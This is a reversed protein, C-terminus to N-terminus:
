DYTIDFKITAFYDGPEIKNNSINLEIEYKLINKRSKKDFYFYNHSLEHKTNPIILNNKIDYIFLIVGKTPGSLRIANNYPDQLSSFQINIGKNNNVGYESICNNLVIYFPKRSQKKESLSIINQQSVSDYSIYQYQSNTEISCPTSVIYGQMVAEGKNEIIKNYSNTLAYAFKPILFLLLWVLYINKMIFRKIPLLLGGM